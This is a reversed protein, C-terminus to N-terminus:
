DDSVLNRQRDLDIQAQIEKLTEDNAFVGAQRLLVARQDRNQLWDDIASKLFRWTNNIQQGPIHGAIAEQAVVEPSLRLYTATEELTLVNPLTATM